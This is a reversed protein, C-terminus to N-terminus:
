RIASTRMNTSSHRPIAAVQDPNSGMQDKLNWSTGGAGADRKLNPGGECVGLGGGRRMEAIDDTRCAKKIDRADKGRM